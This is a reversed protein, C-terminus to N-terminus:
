AAVMQQVSLKAPGSLLPSESSAVFCKSILEKAFKNNALELELAEGKEPNIGKLAKIHNGVLDEARGNTSVKGPPVKELEPELSALLTVALSYYDVETGHPERQKVRPEMMLESGAYKSTTPDSDTLEVIEGLDVFTVRGSDTDMLINAPKLDHYVLNNKHMEQLGEVLGKALSKFVGPDTKFIGDKMKKEVTEGPAKPMLTGVMNLDSGMGVVPRSWEQVGNAPVKVVNSAGDRVVQIFFDTPVAVNASERLKSAALDGVFPITIEQNQIIKKYVRDGGVSYVAGQAGSALKAPKGGEPFIAELGERTLELAKEKSVSKAKDEEGEESFFLKKVACLKSGTDPAQIQAGNATQADLFAAAQSANDILRRVD